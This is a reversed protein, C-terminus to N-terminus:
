PLAECTRVRIISSKPFAKSVQSTIRDGTAGEGLQWAVADGCVALHSPQGSVLAVRSADALAVQGSRAKDVCVAYIGWGDATNEGWVVTAGDTAPATKQNTDIIVPYQWGRTPNWSQILGVKPNYRKALSRAAQLIVERYKGNGTLRYGNGYSCFIM